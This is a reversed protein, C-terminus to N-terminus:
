KRRGAGIIDGDTANSTANSSGDTQNSTWNGVATQNSTSNSYVTTLNEAAFSPSILIGLTLVFIATALFVFNQQQSRSMNM